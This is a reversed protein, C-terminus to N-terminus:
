KALEANIWTVEYLSAAREVCRYSVAGRARLSRLVRSPSDPSVQAREQVFSLLDAMRFMGRENAAVHRVFKIIFEGVRKTVRELELEQQADHTM